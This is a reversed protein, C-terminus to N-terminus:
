KLKLDGKGHDLGWRYVNSSTSRSEKSYRVLSKVNNRVLSEVNNSSM